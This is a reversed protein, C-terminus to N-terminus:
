KMCINFGLDVDGAVYVLPGVTLGTPVSRVKSFDGDAMLNLDDIAYLYRQLQNIAPLFTNMMNTIVKAAQLLVQMLTQVEESLIM